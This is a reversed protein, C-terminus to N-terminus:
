FSGKKKFERIGQRGNECLIVNFGALSLADKLLDRILEDDEIVLLTGEVRAESSIDTPVTTTVIPLIVTCITGVGKLSELSIDGGM